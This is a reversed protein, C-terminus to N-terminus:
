AASKLEGDKPQEQKSQKFLSSNKLNQEFFDMNVEIAGTLLCAVEGFHLASFDINEHLCFKIVKEIDEALNEKNSELINKVISGIENFQANLTEILLERKSDEKDEKTEQIIKNYAEAYENRTKEYCSWYKNILEIAENFHKWGFPYLVIEVKIEQDETQLKVIKKRTLIALDQDSM